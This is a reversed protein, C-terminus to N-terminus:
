PRQISDLLSSWTSRPVLLVPGAPQKSDRIAAAEPPLAVEVCDTGSDGGSFSSKHWVLAVIM